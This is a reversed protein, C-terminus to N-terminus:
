ANSVGEYLAYMWNKLDESPKFINFIQFERIERFTDTRNLDNKLHVNVVYRLIGDNLKHHKEALRYTLFNRFGWFRLYYDSPSIFYVSVNRNSLVFGDVHETNVSQVFSNEFFLSCQLDKLNQLEPIETSNLFYQLCESNIKFKDFVESLHKQYKM